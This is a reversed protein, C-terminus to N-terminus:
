QTEDEKTEPIENESISKPVFGVSEFMKRALKDYLFQAMLYNLFLISSQYLSLLYGPLETCEQEKMFSFNVCYTFSDPATLWYILNFPVATLSAVIFVMRKKHLLIPKYPLFRFIAQSIIIVASIYILSTIAQPIASILFDTM